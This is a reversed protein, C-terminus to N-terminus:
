RQKAKGRMIMRGDFDRYGHDKVIFREHENRSPITPDQLSPAASMPRRLKYPSSFDVHTAKAQHPPSIFSQEDIALVQRLAQYMRADMVRPPPPRLRSDSFARRDIGSFKLQAGREWKLTVM